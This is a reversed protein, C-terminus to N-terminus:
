RRADRRFQLSGVGGVGSGVGGFRLVRAVGGFGSVRICVLWFAFVVNVGGSWEGFM